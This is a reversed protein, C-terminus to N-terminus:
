GPGLELAAAAIADLDADCVPHRGHAFRTRTAASSASRPSTSPM